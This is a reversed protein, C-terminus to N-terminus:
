NRKIYQNSVMKRNVIESYKVDIVNKLRNAVERNMNPYLHGYTGLTTQIDEHGLRDRIILANEGLSILLSAHSHRLAHTKIKHVKALKSHREIIHFTASKNTPLGNYSLVYKSPFVNLQRERWEKLFDVTNDDLAIIRNSAKTKPEAISFENANKYYMSKSVTLTQKKLDIDTEWELAQAEGFRLGTMFLLWITIFSFHEYYDDMKFTAIVKEFEEKTWFDVKKKVKKINGVTKAVNKQLLGLTVALDLTRQLMGHLNRIYSSSYKESLKNHWQKILPPSIDKLKRNFFFKFHLDMSSARNEYTRGSVSRKYDPKFYTEYFEQFSMTSNKQLSTSSHNNMYEDYARKAERQTSFGREWHQVRKGKEDYGLSAVFYWKGNNKDQYVNSIKPM